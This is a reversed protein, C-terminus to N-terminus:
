ATNYYQERWSIIPTGLLQLHMVFFRENSNSMKKCYCLGLLSPKQRDSLSFTPNLGTSVGLTECKMFWSFFCVHKDIGPLIEEARTCFTLSSRHIKLVFVTSKIEWDHIQLYLTGGLLIAFIEGQIEWCSRWLKEVPNDVNLMIM